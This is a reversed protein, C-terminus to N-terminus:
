ARAVIQNHKAIAQAKPVPVDFQDAQALFRELRRKASRGGANHSTDALLAQIVRSFIDQEDFSEGMIRSQLAVSEKVLTEVLPLHEEYLQGTTMKGVELSAINTAWIYSNKILLETFIDREDRARECAIGLRDMASIIVDQRPGYVRSPLLVTIPKHPKREFWVVFITPRTVGNERWQPPLLENQLLVVSHEKWNQPIKALAAKLDDEGTAVVVCEPNLATNVLSSRLIPTVTIGNLLLGEGLTRGLQGMGVIAAQPNNM